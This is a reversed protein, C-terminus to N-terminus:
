VLAKKERIDLINQVKLVGLPYKGLNEPTLEVVKWNGTEM